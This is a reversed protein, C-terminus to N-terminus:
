KLIRAIELLRAQEEHYEKEAQIIRKELEMAFERSCAFSIDSESKLKYSWGLSGCFHLTVEGTLLASKIDEPTPMTINM